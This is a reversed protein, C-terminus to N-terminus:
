NKLRSLSKLSSSYTNSQFLLMIIKFYFHINKKGSSIAPVALSKLKLKDAIRFTVEVAEQLDAFCKAKEKDTYDEWTPGVTHIVHKYSLKGASTVCCKTVSLPGHNKVYAKSEREFEAGAALAIARAVGGAHVLHENAANVICDVPLHTIDGPYVKVIIGHATKM